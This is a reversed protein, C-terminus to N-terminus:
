LLRRHYAILDDAVDLKLLECSVCSHVKRSAKFKHPGTISLHHGVIDNGAELLDLLNHVNRGSTIRRRRSAM